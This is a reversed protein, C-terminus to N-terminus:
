LDFEIDDEGNGQKANRQKGKQFVSNQFEELSLFRLEPLETGQNYVFKIKTREVLKKNQYYRKVKIIGTKNSLHQFVAKHSDLQKIEEPMMLKRGIENGKENEITTTGITRSIREAAEVSLGGYYIHTNIGGYLIASSEGPYNKEVQSWDQITLCICCRRKRLTTIIQAFSPLTGINAFEDLFLNVSRHHKNQRGTEMLLDFLQTYLIKIIPAYFKTQNEPYQLFFACKKSRLNLLDLTDSSTLQALHMDKLFSLATKANSVFGAATNPANNKFAYWEAIDSEESLYTKMFNDLVSGETHSYQNVLFRLNGLNCYSKDPYAKLATIITSLFSIAGDNWFKENTAGESSADIIIKAIKHIEKPTNCRQLPNFTLSSGKELNLVKIEFEKENMLYAGCLELVEGSPDTIFISSDENALLLNPIIFSSTKGSGTGGIAAINLSESTKLRHFGDLVIGKHKPAAKLIKRLEKTRLLSASGYNSSTKKVGEKLFKVVKEIVSGISFNDSGELQENKYAKPYQNAHSKFLYAIYTILSLLIIYVEM